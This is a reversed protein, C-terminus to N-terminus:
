NAKNNYNKVEQLRAYIEIMAAQDILSKAPKPGLLNTGDRETTWINDADVEFFNIWDQNKDIKYLDIYGRLM